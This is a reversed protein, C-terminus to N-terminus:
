LTAVPRRKRTDFVQIYGPTGPAVMRAARLALRFASERTATYRLAPLIRARSEGVEAARYAHAIEGTLRLKYRPKPM